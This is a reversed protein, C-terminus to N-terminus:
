LAGCDQGRDQFLWSLGLLIDPWLQPRPTLRLPFSREGCGATHLALPQRGVGVGTELPQRGLDDTHPLAPFALNGLLQNGDGPSVTDM